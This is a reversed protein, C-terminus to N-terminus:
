QMKLLVTADRWFEELSYYSRKEASFVHIIIDGYDIVMWGTEPQGEVNRAYLSYTEKVEGRIGEVIARLQRESNASCIIFYDALITVGRMDLLLIDEGKKELIVDVAFRAIDNTQADIIQDM